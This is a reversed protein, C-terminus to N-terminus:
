EKLLDEITYKTNEHILLQRTEELTFWRIDNAGAEERVVPQEPLTIHYMCDLHFHEPQEKHPPVIEEFFYTPLPLLKQEGILKTSFFPTIDIGTEEITERIICELPNEFQEVHGGPQIWKDFKKHHILLIKKPKEPTTIWISATLHKEGPLPVQSM